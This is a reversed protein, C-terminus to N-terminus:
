EMVTNPLVQVVLYVQLCRYKGCFYGIASMMNKNEPLTPLNQLFHFLPSLFFLDFLIIRGKATARVPISGTNLGQSPETRVTLRVRRNSTELKCLYRKM